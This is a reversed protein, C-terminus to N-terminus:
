DPFLEYLSVNLAKAIAKAMSFRPERKESEYYSIVQPSIFVKKGLEAQSWGEKKRFKRINNM